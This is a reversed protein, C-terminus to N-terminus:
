ILPPADEIFQGIRRQDQTPEMRRNVNKAFKMYSSVFLNFKPAFKLYAEKSGRSVNEVGVKKSAEVYSRVFVVSYNWILDFFICAFHFFLFANNEGKLNELDSKIQNTPRDVLAQHFGLLTQIWLAQTQIDSGPKDHFHFTQIAM